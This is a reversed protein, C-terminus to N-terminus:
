LGDRDEDMFSITASSKRENSKKRKTKSTNLRMEMVECLHGAQRVKARINTIRKPELCTYIIDINAIPENVLM